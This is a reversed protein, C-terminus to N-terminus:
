SEVVSPVREPKGGMVDPEALEFLQEMQENTTSNDLHRMHHRQSTVIHAFAELDWDELAQKAEYASDRLGFLARLTDEKGDRFNGWVREHINSSLRAKGTYCLVLLSELEAVRSPSLKVPHRGVDDATFVFLNIGGVASAYQDQKGGIIGLTREIEYALGAIHMRDEDSTIPDRRALALWVVNLTASTGLGTGAPISSSYSVTLAPGNGVAHKGSPGSVVREGAPFVSTADDHVKLSGTVHMGIAANLTAGGFADAFCPVDTWAGAFDIRVPARATITM